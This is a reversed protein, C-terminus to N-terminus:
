PASRIGQPARAVRARRSFRRPRQVGPDDLPAQARRQRGTVELYLDETQEIMQRKSFRQEFRMRAALGMEARRSEDNAVERVRAAMGEVDRPRILHGNVGEAVQESVGGVDYALVPLSARMAELISVPFGEWASTQVLMDAAALVTEADSTSDLVRGGAAVLADGAPSDSLGEGLAAITVEGELARALAALDQPRKQPANRGIWVALAGTRSEGVMARAQRAGHVAAPSTGSLGTHIVEAAGEPVVGWREAELREANSTVAIRTHRHRALFREVRAYLMRVPARGEMQFSWAHPSYITPVPMRWFGTLFGAKSSHAHIVEVGERLCLDRLMVATRRDSLAPARGAELAVM